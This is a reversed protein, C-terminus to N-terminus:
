GQVKSGEECAWAEIALELAEADADTRYLYAIAATSTLFRGIGLSKSLAPFREAGDEVLWRGFIKMGGGRARRRIEANMADIKRRTNSIADAGAVTGNYPALAKLTVEGIEVLAGLAETSTGTVFSLDNM